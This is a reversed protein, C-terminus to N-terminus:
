LLFLDEQYQPARRRLKEGLEEGKVHSLAEELPFMALECLKKLRRLSTRGARLRINYGGKEGAGLLMGLRRYSGVQKRAREILMLHFKRDITLPIDKRNTM